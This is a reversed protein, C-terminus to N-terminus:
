ILQQDSPLDFVFANALRHAEASIEPQSGERYKTIPSWAKNAQKNENNHIEDASNAIANGGNERLFDSTNYCAECKGVKYNISITSDTGERNFDPYKVATPVLGHLKYQMIIQPKMTGDGQVMYHYLYVDLQRYKGTPGIIFCDHEVDYWNCLWDNHYKTISMYADEIWTITMETARTINTFFNRRLNQDEKFNLNISPFTISKIRFEANALNRLQSGDKSSKGNESGSSFNGAWFLNGEFPELDSLYNIAEYEYEAINGIDKFNKFKGNTNLEGM